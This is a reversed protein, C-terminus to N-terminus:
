ATRWCRVFGPMQRTTFSPKAGGAKMQNKAFSAAAGSVINQVVILPAGGCQAPTCDFSDGKEMRKFPFDPRRWAANRKISRDREIPLGHAIKFEGLAANAHDFLDM